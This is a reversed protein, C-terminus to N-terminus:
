ETHQARRCQMCPHVKRITLMLFSYQIIKIKLFFIYSYTSDTCLDWMLSFVLISKMGNCNIVCDLVTYVWTYYLLFSVFRFSRVFSRVFFISNPLAPLSSSPLVYFSPLSLIEQKTKIFFTGTGTWSFYLYLIHLTLLCYRYIYFLVHFKSVTYVNVTYIYYLLIPLLTFHTIHNTHTHHSLIILIM